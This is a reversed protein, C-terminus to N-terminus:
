LKRRNMYKRIGWPFSCRSGSIRILYLRFDFLFPCGTHLCQSFLQGSSIPILKEYFPGHRLPLLFSPNKLPYRIFINTHEDFIFIDFLCLTNQISQNSSPCHFSRYPVFPPLFHIVTQKTFNDAPLNRTYFNIFVLMPKGKLIDLWTCRDM